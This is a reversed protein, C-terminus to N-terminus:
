IKLTYNTETVFLSSKRHKSIQSTFLKLYLSVSLSTMHIIVEIMEIM